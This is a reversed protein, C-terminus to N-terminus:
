HHPEDVWERLASGFVTGLRYRTWRREEDALTPVNANALIRVASGEGGDETIHVEVSDILKDLWPRFVVLRPRIARAVQPKIEGTLLELWRDLEDTLAEFM